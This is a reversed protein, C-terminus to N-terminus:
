RGSSAGKSWRLRDGGVLALSLVSLDGPDFRVERYSNM